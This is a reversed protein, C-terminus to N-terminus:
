LRLPTSYEDCGETGAVPIEITIKSGGNSDEEVLLEGGISHLREQVSFLGFCTKDVNQEPSYTFGVGNDKVIILVSSHKELVEVEAMTANAHKVINNLLEFVVRYLLFKMEETMEIINNKCLVEVTLGFQVKFKQTLSQIGAILGFQYLEQPYLEATLSRTEQICFDLYNLIKSDAIHNGDFSHLLQQVELKTACLLQGISDHLRGAILRRECEETMVLQNTLKELRKERKVQAASLGEFLFKVRDAIALSLFVMEIGSGIQAANDGIVPYPFGGKFNLVYVLGGGLLFIWSFLFYKAPRYGRFSAVFGAVLVIFIVLVSFNLLVKGISYYSFFPLVLITGASLVGAAQLFRYIIPMNRKAELFVIAFYTCIVFTVLILFQAGKRTAELYEIPFLAGSLENAVMFYISLTVAYMIFILRVKDRLFLYIFLNYVIMSLALGYYLGYFLNLKNSFGRYADPSFLVPKLYFASLTKIRLYYEVVQGSKEPLTIKIYSLDRRGRIQAQKLGYTQKEWGSFTKDPEDNKWRYFFQVEDYYDLRKGLYLFVEPSLSDHKETAKTRMLSFRFWNSSDTTDFSISPKQNLIFQDSFNTSSVDEIGLHEPMYESYQVYDGLSIKYMDDSVTVVNLKADGAFPFLFGLIFLGLFTITWKRSFTNLILSLSILAPLLTTGINGLAGDLISCGKANIHPM